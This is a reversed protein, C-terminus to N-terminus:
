LTVRHCNINTMLGPHQIIFLHSIFTKRQVFACRNQNNKKVAGRRRKSVRGHTSVCHKEESRMIEFIQSVDISIHMTMTSDKQQKRGIQFHHKVIRLCAAKM